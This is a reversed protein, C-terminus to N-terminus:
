FSTCPSYNASSSNFASFNEFVSNAVTDIVGSCVCVLSHIQPHNNSVAESIYLDKKTIAIISIAHRSQFILCYRFAKETFAESLNM